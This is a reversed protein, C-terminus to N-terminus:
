ESRSPDAHVLAIAGQLAPYDFGEVDVLILVREDETPPTAVDGLRVM